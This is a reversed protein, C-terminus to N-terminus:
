VKNWGARYRRSSMRSRLDNGFTIPRQVISGLKQLFSPEGGYGGIHEKENGLESDGGVHQPIEYKRRGHM